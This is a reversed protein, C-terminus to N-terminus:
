NTSEKFTATFHKEGAPMAFMYYPPQSQFTVQNTINVAGDYLSELDYNEAPLFFLYVSANQAFPFDGTYDPPIQTFAHSNNGDWIYVSCNEGIVDVSVPYTPIAKFTATVYVDSPPMDLVLINNSVYDTVQTEQNNVTLILSELVYNEEPEITLTFNEYPQFYNSPSVTVKGHVINQDINIKYAQKMRVNVTYYQEQSWTVNDQTFTYNNNDVDTATLTISSSGYQCIAAWIESSPDDLSIIIDGMIDDTGFYSLQLLKNNSDHITLEKAIIPDDNDKVLNFRIVAQNNYFPSNISGTIKEGIITFSSDYGGQISYDYRQAIDDLTGKQGSYDIPYRPFIFNLWGDSPMENLEGSLITSPGDGQATLEGIQTCHYVSSLPDLAVIVVREGKKWAADLRNDVLGLARTDTGKTAEITMTYTKPASPEEPLQPQEEHSCAVMVTALMLISLIKKM